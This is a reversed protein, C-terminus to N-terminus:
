KAIYYFDSTTFAQHLSCGSTTFWKRPGLGLQEHEKNIDAPQLSSKDAPHLSSGSTTFRSEPGPLATGGTTTFKQLLLKGKKNELLGGQVFIAVRRFTSESFLFISRRLSISDLFLFCASTAESKLTDFAHTLAMTLFLLSYKM